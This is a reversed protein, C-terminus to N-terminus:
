VFPPLCGKTCVKKPPPGPEKLGSLSVTAVIAPAELVYQVELCPTPGMDEGGTCICPDEEEKHDLIVLV